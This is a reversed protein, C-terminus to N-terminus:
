AIINSKKISSELEIIRAELDHIKNILKSANKLQGILDKIERNFERLEGISETNDSNMGNIDKIVSVITQGGIFPSRLITDEILYRINQDPDINNVKTDNEKDKKSSLNARAIRNRCERCSSYRGPPFNEANNEGCVDGNVIQKCFYTKPM